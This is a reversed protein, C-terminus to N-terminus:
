SSKKMGAPSDALLLTDKDAFEMSMSGRLGLSACKSIRQAIPCRLGFNWLQHEGNHAIRLLAEYLDNGYLGTAIRPKFEGFGRLAFVTLDKVRNTKTDLGDGERDALAGISDDVNEM